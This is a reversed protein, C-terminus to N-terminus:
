SVLLRDELVYMEGVVSLAMDPFDSVLGSVGMTLYDDMVAPDNVTWVYVPVWAERAVGLLEPSVMWEEVLLFDINMERLERASLQGINGYVCYGTRYNPYQTKMQEVLQYDLSLYLADKQYRSTQMVKMVSQVLDQQEHNHLKYEVALLIKGECYDVAEQLTSIRGTYGNQSLTLAGLEAATLDYVNLNQGTLRNLNADHVVMPVGDASLLVDVEAYDAGSDIAGQISELTNEVGYASGRHGIVIPDHVGPVTHLVQFITLGLLLILIVVIIRKYKQVFKNSKVKQWIVGLQFLIRHFVRRCWATYRDLRAGIKQVAEAEPLCPQGVPLYFATFLTLVLPMLVLQALWMVLWVLLMIPTRLSFGYFRAAQLLSVSTAGFFFDFVQRTLLFLAAWALVLVLLVGIIRFGYARIAGLSRKVAQWFSARELVMAPLVFLLSLFVLVVVLWLALLGWQGLTTKTLEGTIFNPISLRPLLSSTIGMNVLPLMGLAYLVFLVVSPKALSPFGWITQIAATRLSPPENDVAQRALSIIVAYEFYVSLTAIAALLLLSLIGPLSLLNHWIRENFAMNTGNIQLFLQMVFLLLPKIVLTTVLRYVIEFLLIRPLALRFAGFGSRLSRRFPPRTTTTMIEELFTGHGENLM